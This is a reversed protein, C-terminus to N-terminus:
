ELSQKVRHGCKCIPKMGKKQGEAAIANQLWTTVNDFKSNWLQRM